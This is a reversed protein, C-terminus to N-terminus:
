AHGTIQLPALPHLSVSRISRAFELSVGDVGSDLRVVGLDMFARLAPSPASPLARGVSIRSVKPADSSTPASMGAPMVFLLPEHLRDSNVAVPISAGAPLYAPTYEWCEFPAESPGRLAFGLRGWDLEPRACRDAVGTRAIPQSRAEAEDVCFLFELYLGDFFFRRNATGQGPHTNPAGEQLGAERLIDAARDPRTTTVFLHDLEWTEVRGGDHRHSEPPM